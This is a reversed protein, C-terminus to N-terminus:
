NVPKGSALMDLEARAAAWEDFDHPCDRDAVTLLRMGEVKDHEQIAFEGGYFSAECTQALKVKLDHDDAKALLQPL